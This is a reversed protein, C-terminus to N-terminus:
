EEADKEQRLLLGANLDCRYGQGVQIRGGDTVAYLNVTFVSLKEALSKPVTVSFLGNEEDWVAKGQWLTTRTNGNIQELFLELEDFRDRLEALGKVTYRVTEDQRAMLVDADTDSLEDSLAYVTEDIGSLSTLLDSKKKLEENMVAYGDRELLTQEGSFLNVGLGLREGDIKAGLAALTTPFLDFTTYERFTKSDKLGAAPNIITTYVRRSYDGPVDDCYGVQMTIHDGSIVITTNEYFDQQQIWQVFQATQRSACRLANSYQQGYEDECLGCVYGDPFHTDVTLLSLNFPQDGAALELLHEKAFAFLKEDEYGWWVHYDEPIQGSRVAYNYDWIEYNGHQTFYLERGGFSADSGILLAQRYGSQELIDGLSMVGPFFATQYSMSSDTVPIKLPLGSTQAFLAGMTWTAGAMSLGGNVGGQKGTFSINEEALATLEPIVDQAMAGGHATDSFTSEMSELWIYILNRKKEPMEIGSLGAEAYNGDISTDTDPEPEASDPKQAAPKVIPKTVIVYNDEIYSSSSGFVENKLYGNVDFLFFGICLLILISAGSLAALLRVARAFWVRKRAALLVAACGLGFLATSLLCGFYFDNMIEGSTGEVSTALQNVIENMKLDDWHGAEWRWTSLLFTQITFLLCALVPLLWPRIRLLARNIRKRM